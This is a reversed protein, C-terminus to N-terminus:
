NSTDSQASYHLKSPFPSPLLSSVLRPSALSSNVSNAEVLLATIILPLQLGTAQIPPALPAKRQLSLEPM